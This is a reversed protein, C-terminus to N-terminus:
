LVEDRLISWVQVDQHRGRHFWAKRMTGELTFGCKEAVRQSADNDPHIV